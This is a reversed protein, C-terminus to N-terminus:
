FVAILIQGQFFQSLLFHTNSHFNRALSIKNNDNNLPFILHNLQKSQRLKSMQLIFIIINASDVELPYNGHSPFQSLVHLLDSFFFSLINLFSINNKLPRNVGVKFDASICVNVHSKPEDIWIFTM